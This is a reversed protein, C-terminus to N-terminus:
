EGEVSSPAAKHDQPAIPNVEICKRINLAAIFKKIHGKKEINADALMEIVESEKMTLMFKVDDYGNEVLNGFYQELKVNTLFAKLEEM